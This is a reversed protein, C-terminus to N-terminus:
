NSIFLDMFHQARVELDEDKQTKETEIVSDFYDRQETLDINGVGIVSPLDGKMMSKIM